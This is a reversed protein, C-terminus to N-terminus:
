EGYRAEREAVIQQYIKKKETEFRKELKRMEEDLFAQKKEEM